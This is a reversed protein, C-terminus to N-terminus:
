IHNTPSRRIPSANTCGASDHSSRVKVPSASSCVSTVDDMSCCDEFSIEHLSYEMYDIESVDPYQLEVQSISLLFVNSKHIFSVDLDNIISGDKFSNYSEKHTKM